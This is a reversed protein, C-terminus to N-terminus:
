KVLFEKIQSTNNKKFFGPNKEQRNDTNGTQYAIILRDVSNIVNKFDEKDNEQIAEVEKLLNDRDKNLNQERNRISELKKNYKEQINNLEDEVKQKMQFSQDRFKNYTKSVKEYYPHPDHRFFSAIIGAAIITMNLVLLIAGDTGLPTFLAEQFNQGAGNSILEEFTGGAKEVDALKQRMLALIYVLIIIVISISGIGSYQKFRLNKPSDSSGAERILHGVIHSFFVLMAGVAIALLLLVYGEGGFFLAFAKRNVPIEALSLVLLFPFYFKEFKTLVPRNLESRLRDYDTKASQLDEELKQHKSSQNGEQSIYLAQEQELTANEKQIEASINTDIDYDTDSLKKKIEKLYVKKESLYKDWASRADTLIKLVTGSVDNEDSKPINKKGDFEGDKQAKSIEHQPLDLYKNIFKRYTMSM